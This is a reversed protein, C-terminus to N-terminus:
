APKKKIKRFSLLFGLLGIGFLLNSGPEPITAADVMADRLPDNQRILFSTGGSFAYSNIIADVDIDTAKWHQKWSFLSQEPSGEHTWSYAMFTLKESSYRSPNVGLPGSSNVEGAPNGFVGVFSTMNDLYGSGYYDTTPMGFEAYLAKVTDLGAYRWEYLPGAISSMVENYSKSLVEPNTLKFWDLNTKTDTVYSGHDIFSAYAFSSFTFAVLFSSMRLMKM